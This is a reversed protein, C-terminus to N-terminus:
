FARSITRPTAPTFSMQTDEDSVWRVRLKIGRGTSRIECMSLIFGLPVVVRQRLIYYM